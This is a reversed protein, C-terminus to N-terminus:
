SKNEESWKNGKLYATAEARTRLKKVYRGAACEIEADASCFELCWCRRVEGNASCRGAANRVEESAERYRPGMLVKYKTELDLESMKIAM